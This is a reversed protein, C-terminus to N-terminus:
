FVNSFKFMLHQGDRSGLAWDVRFFVGSDTGIRFGTGWNSEFDKFNIERRISAVKGTDYFLVADLAPFLEWRYEAQLLVLHRDRLRFDNFGRLSHSGGLTPQFYFPVTQGARPDSFSALGRFALVRRGRLFSVYQQADFEWREFSYQDLESDNFYSYTILYRGGTRPNDIPTAFDLQAFVRERFFDPQVLLGPADDDTFEEEISPYNQDKGTTVSPNLYAVGGGMSLWRSLRIGATADVETQLHRFNTRDELRSHPGPGYYDEQTYDWRRATIGAFARGGVLRPMSMELEGLLYRRMSAAGRVSLEIQRGLRARGNYGTGLTLGAGTTINGLTLYFGGSSPSPTEFLNEVTQENEVRALLREIRGADYPRTTGTRAERQRRLSEQRTRPPDTHSTSTDPQAFAPAPLVVVSALM